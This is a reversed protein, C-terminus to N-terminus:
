RGAADQKVAVWTEQLKAIRIKVLIQKLVCQIEAHCHSCLRYNYASTVGREDYEYCTLKHGHGDLGENCASCHFRFGLRGIM